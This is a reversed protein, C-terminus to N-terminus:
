LLQRAPRSLPLCQVLSHIPHCSMQHLMLPFLSGPTPHHQNSCHIQFPPLEVSLYMLDALSSWSVWTNPHNVLIGAQPNECGSHKLSDEAQSKGTVVCVNLILLLPWRVRINTSSCSAFRHNEAPCFCKLHRSNWHPNVLLTPAIWQM